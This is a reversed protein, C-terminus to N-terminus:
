AGDGNESQKEKKEGRWSLRRTSGRCYHGRTSSRKRMPPHKDLVDALSKNYCHVLDDLTHPSNEFLDSRLM